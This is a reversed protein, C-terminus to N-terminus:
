VLGQTELRQRLRYAPTYDVDLRIAQGADDYALRYSGALAYTEARHQFVRPNSSNVRIAESFDNIAGKFDKLHSKAFGRQDYLRHRDTHSLAVELGQCCIEIAEEHKGVRNLAFGLNGYARVYTADAKIAKRYFGIAGAWDEERTLAFGEDTLEQPSLTTAASIEKSCSAVVVSRM